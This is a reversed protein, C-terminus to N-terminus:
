KIPSFAESHRKYYGKSKSHFGVFFLGRTSQLHKGSPGTLVPSADAARALGADMRTPIGPSEGLRTSLQAARVWGTGGTGIRAGRSGPRLLPRTEGGLQSSLHCRPSGSQSTPKLLLARARIEGRQSRHRCPRSGLRSANIEKFTLWILTLVFFPMVGHGHRRVTVHTQAPVRPCTPLGPLTLAGLPVSASAGPSQSQEHNPPGCEARFDAHSLHIPQAELGSFFGAHLVTGPFAPGM